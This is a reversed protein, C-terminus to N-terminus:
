VSLASKIIDDYSSNVDAMQDRTQNGLSRRGRPPQRGTQRGARSRQLLNMKIRLMVENLTMGRFRQDSLIRHYVQAYPIMDPNQRFHDEVEAQSRRTNEEQEQRQRESETRQREVDLVPQTGKRIEERVMDMLSSPDVGSAQLGLQTLDIGRTAARTLLKKLTTTPDKKGEAFLQLAELHEQENLGLQSAVASQIKLKEHAEQLQKGLQEGIGIAQQLRGYTNQHNAQETVLAIRANHANEFHRREGGARALIKGDKGVVNGQKDFTLRDQRQPQQQEQPTFDLDDGETHSVNDDQSVDDELRDDQLDLENEDQADLDVGLDDQSLGLNSFIDAQNQPDNQIETPSKPM